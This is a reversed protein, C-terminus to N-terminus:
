RLRVNEHDLRSFSKTQSGLDERSILVKEIPFRIQELQSNKKGITHEAVELELPIHLPDAIFHGLSCKSLTTTVHRALFHKYIVTYETTVLTNAM